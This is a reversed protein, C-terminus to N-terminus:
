FYLRNKSLIQFSQFYKIKILGKIYLALCFVFGFAILIGTLTPIKYYLHLVSYKAVVPVAILMSIIYFRFGNNWYKPRFGNSTPPGYYLSGPFQLSIIGWLLLGIVLSWCEVDYRNKRFIWVNFNLFVLKNRM